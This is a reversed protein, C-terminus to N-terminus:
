RNVEIEVGSKFEVKVTDDFIMVKEILMRVIQEDYALIVGDQEQLFDTM